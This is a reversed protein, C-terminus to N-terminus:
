KLGVFDALEDICEQGIVTSDMDAILLAKRRNAANQVVIDVPLGTLAEHLRRRLDRLDDGSRFLLDAAENEALTNIQSAHIFQAARTSAADLAAANDPRTILTAVLATMFVFPISSAGPVPATRIAPGVALPLDYMATSSACRWSPMTTLASEM